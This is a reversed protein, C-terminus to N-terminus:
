AVIATTVRAIFRCLAVGPSTTLSFKSNKYDLNGMSDIVSVAVNTADGVNITTYGVYGSEAGVTLGYSVGVNAQAAAADTATSTCYAAYIDAPDIMMVRVLDGATYEAAIPWTKTPDAPGVVFGQWADGTASNSTHCLTAYGAAIYVPAGPM